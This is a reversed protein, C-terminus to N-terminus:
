DVSRNQMTNLYDGVGAEQLRTMMRVVADEPLQTLPRSVTTAIPLGVARLVAKAASFFAGTEALIDIGRVALDQMRQARTEDGDQFAEILKHYIPAMFNYTSGVAGSAGRQFSKLLLEDRGFLIDYRGHDYQVCKQYDDLDEFTYKVGAFNPISGVTKLLDIMAFDVQNMAPMHYYYYPIDPAAAATAAIYDALAAVTPPRYFVPGIEGVASAGITAAHAALAQSENQCVHGVHVIVQFGEPAAQVWREAIVRREVITLSLGEGTTGNIFAGGVSNAHLMRAYAPIIELDVSGDPLFGTLPAAILLERGGARLLSGPSRRPALQLPNDENDNTMTV